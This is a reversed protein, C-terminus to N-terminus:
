LPELQFSLRNRYIGARHGVTEWGRGIATAALSIHIAVPSNRSDDSRQFEIANMPVGWGATPSLATSLQQAWDDLTLTALLQENEFFTISLPEDRQLTGAALLRFPGKEGSTAEVIRFEKQETLYAFRTPRGTPYDAPMVEIPEKPCPSFRLALNQHGEVVLSCFSNLHSYNGEVVPSWSTWDVFGDKQGVPLRVTATDHYQFWCHKADQSARRLRLRNNKKRPALLSWFGDPSIRDFNLLPYCHFLTKGRRLTLEARHPHYQISNSLVVMTSSDEQWDVSPEPVAVDMPQTSASPPVQAGIALVGAFLAVLNGFIIRGTSRLQNRMLFWSFSFGCVAVVLGLGWFERLSHPFLVRGAIAGGLWGVSFMLAVLGALQLRVFMLGMLGLMAVLM